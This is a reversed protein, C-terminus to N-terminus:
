NHWGHYSLASITEAEIQTPEIELRQFVLANQKRLGFPVSFIKKGTHLRHVHSGITFPRADSVIPHEVM